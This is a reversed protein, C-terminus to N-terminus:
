GDLSIRFQSYANVLADLTFGRNLGSPNPLIWTTLGGIARGQYGWPVDRVDLMAAYARKGLFALSRPAFRRMREEFEPRARRFEQLSVESARRTPRRVVATIGCSYDLLRHENQPGLRESTFGSLHLVIWFRNSPTSFNHGSIAASAAPNIGCFVAKLGTTLIDSQYVSMDSQILPRERLSAETL